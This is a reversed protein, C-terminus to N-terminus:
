RKRPKLDFSQEILLSSIFPTNCKVLCFSFLNLGASVVVMVEHMKFSSSRGWIRKMRRRMRGRELKVGM